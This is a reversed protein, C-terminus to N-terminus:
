YAYKLWKFYKYDKLRLIIYSAMLCLAILIMYLILGHQLFEVKPFTLRFIVIFVFHLIFILINSQRMHKYLPKYDIKWNYALVFLSPVMILRLDFSQIITVLWSLIFIFLLLKNKIISRRKKLINKDALIYGMVIWVLAVSFSNLPNQLVAEYWLWLGQWYNPFLNVHYTYLFVIFPLIWITKDNCLKSLLYILWIGVLLASLFWSGHFTSCLIIDRILCLPIMFTDEHLYHQIVLPMQVIM